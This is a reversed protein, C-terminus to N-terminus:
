TRKKYEAGADEDERSTGGRAVTMSNGRNLLSFFVLVVYYYLCCLYVCVCVRVCVFDVGVLFSPRARLIRSNNEPRGHHERRRQKKRKRKEREKERERERQKIRWLGLVCAYRNTLMGGAGGGRGRACVRRNTGVGNRNEIDVHGGQKYLLDISLVLFVFCIAEDTDFGNRHRLTKKEIELDSEFIPLVVVFREAKTYTM